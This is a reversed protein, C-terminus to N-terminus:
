SPDPSVDRRARVRQMLAQMFGAVRLQQGFDAEDRWQEYMERLRLGNFGRIAGRRGADDGFRTARDLMREIEADLYAARDEQPLAYYRDVKALLWTKGLQALNREARRRQRRDLAELQARWDVGRDVSAEFQEALELQREPPEDAMDTELLAYRLQADLRGPGANAAFLESEVEPEIGYRAVQWTAALMIGVTAALVLGSITQRIM